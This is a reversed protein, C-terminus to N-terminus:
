MFAHCQLAQILACPSHPGAQMCMVSMLIHSFEPCLIDCACAHVVCSSHTLGLWFMIHVLRAQGSGIGCWPFPDSVHGCLLKDGLFKIVM